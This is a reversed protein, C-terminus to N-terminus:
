VMRSASAYVIAGGVVGDRVAGALERYWGAAYEFWERGAAEVIAPESAAIRGALDDYWRGFEATCDVIRDLQWGAGDLMAPVRELRLPDWSGRRKAMLAVAREDVSPWTYDFLVLSAEDAAVERMQALARPQDPFAYFSTFLCIVDARGPWLSALRGADGCIFTLGPYQARAAEINEADIDVGVPVGWGHEALYRATGGRGCGVDLVVQAPRKPIPAMVLDIAEEEGPHAYDGGRVLALIRKGVISNM